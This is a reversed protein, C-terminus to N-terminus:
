WLRALGSGRAQAIDDDTLKGWQQSLGGKLQDWKGEIQTWNM